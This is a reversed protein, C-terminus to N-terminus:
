LTEAKIDLNRSYSMAAMILAAVVFSSIGFGAGIPVFWDLRIFYFVSALLVAYKIVIILVTWAISKKEMLRLWSWALLVLNILMLVGGVAISAGLQVGGLWTGAAGFVAILM